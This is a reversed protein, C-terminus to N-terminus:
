ANLQNILAGTAQSEARGDGINCDALLLSHLTILNIAKNGSLHGIYYFTTLFPQLMLDNNM